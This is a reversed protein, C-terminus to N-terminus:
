LWFLLIIIIIFLLLIKCYVDLVVDQSASGAINTATCTYTGANTRSLSSFTLRSGSPFVLGGQSWQVVPTPDGEVACELVHVTGEIGASDSIPPSFSPPVSYFFYCYNFIYKRRIMGNVTLDVYDESIGAVNVARCTYVDEHSKMVNGIVLTQGNSIYQFGAFIFSSMFKVSFSNKM